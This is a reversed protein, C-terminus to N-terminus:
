QYILNCFEGIEPSFFSLKGSSASITAQSTVISPSRPSFPRAPVLKPSYPLPTLSTSHLPSSTPTPLLSLSFHRPHLHLKAMALLLIVTSSELSLEVPTPWEQLIGGIQIPETLRQKKLFIIIIFLYLNFLFTFQNKSYVHTIM